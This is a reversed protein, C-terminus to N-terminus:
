ENIDGGEPWPSAIDILQDFDVKVYAKTSDLSQHGLLDATAKLGNGANYIRSAATRRLAHTGKWWGTIGEKQFARRVVGRVQERTMMTHNNLTKRLLLHKEPIRPRHNIVYDELLHGLEVSFPIERTQSNKTNSVRIVGSDWRIDSIVIQTVEACRLGLDLMLLIIIKNRISIEDEAAYHARLKYEEDQSLVVPVKSNAWNASCLPLKFVSPHIVEGRYELFRFFNRLSTVYRGISSAALMKYEQCVYDRLDSAHIDEWSSPISGISSLFRQIHSRESLASMATMHKFSVSYDLFDALIDAFINDQEVQKEYEKITTGTMMLYWQSSAPKINHQEATSFFKQKSALTDNIHEYLGDPETTNWSEPAQQLAKSYCRVTSEAYSKRELYEAYEAVKQQNM